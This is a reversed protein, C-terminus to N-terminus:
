SYVVCLNLLIGGLAGMSLLQATVCYWHNLAWGVEVGLSRGFVHVLWPLSFGSPDTQPLKICVSLLLLSSSSLYVAFQTYMFECVCFWLPLLQFPNTPIM